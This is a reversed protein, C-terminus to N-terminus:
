NQSFETNILLAFFVTKLNINHYFKSFFVVVFLFMNVPDLPCITVLRSNNWSFSVMSTNQLPPITCSITHGSSPLNSVDWVKSILPSGILVNLNALTLDWKRTLTTSWSGQMTHILDKYHTAHATFSMLSNQVKTTSFLWIFINTNM